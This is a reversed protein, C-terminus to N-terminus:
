YEDEEDEEDDRWHHSILQVIDVDKHNYEAGMAIQRDRELKAEELSSTLYVTDSQSGFGADYYRTIVQYSGNNDKCENM